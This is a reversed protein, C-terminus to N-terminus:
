PVGAISVLAIFAISSMLFLFDFISSIPPHESSEFPSLILLCFNLSIGDISPTNFKDLDKRESEARELIMDPHLETFSKKEEKDLSGWLGKYLSVSSEQTIEWGEEQQSRVLETAPIEQSNVGSQENDKYFVFTARGFVQFKERSLPLFWCIQASNKEGQTFLSKFIRSRRDLAICIVSHESTKTHAKNIGRFKVIDNSPIRTISDQYSLNMNTYFDLQRNNISAKEFAKEWTFSADM